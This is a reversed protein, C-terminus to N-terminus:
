LAPEWRFRRVAVVAAVAGWAVLVLVDGARPASRGVTGALALDFAPQIPLARAVASVWGPADDGIPVFVGSLLLLPFLLGNVLPPAAAADPVYTSVALGIATFCGAALVTIGLLVAARGVSPVGLADIAVGYALTITVLVVAVLTAHVVRAAVVTGIPLPTGRLRKLVGRERALTMTMAVNTYTASISGFVAMAVVHYTTRDYAIGDRAITGDRLLTTLVVLLGLPFVLTFIAAAPNRLFALHVFRLHTAMRRLESTV